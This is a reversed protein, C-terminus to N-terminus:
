DLDCLLLVSSIRIDEILLNDMRCKENLSEALKRSIRYYGLENDRNKYSCLLTFDINASNTKEKVLYFYKKM